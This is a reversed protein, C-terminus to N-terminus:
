KTWDIQNFGRYFREDAARKSEDAWPKITRVYKEIHQKEQFPTNEQYTKFSGKHECGHASPMGTSRTKKSIIFNM